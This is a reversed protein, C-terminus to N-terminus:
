HFIRMIHGDHYFLNMIKRKAVVLKELRPHRVVSSTKASNITSQARLVHLKLLEMLMVVMYIVEYYALSVAAGGTMYALIALMLMDAMDRAWQYGSGLRVVTKKIIWRARLGRVLIILFIGLGVFGLDGLVEFYISHAAKAKFTPPPLNM